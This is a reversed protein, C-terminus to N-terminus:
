VFIERTPRNKELSDLIKEFLSYPPRLSKKPLQKLDEISLWRYDTIEKSKAIEGAIIRAKFYFCILQVDQVMQIHIGQLGDIKSKVNIEEQIERELAKQLNIDDLEFTGGPFFWLGPHRAKISQQTLLYKDGERIAAVVIIRRKM